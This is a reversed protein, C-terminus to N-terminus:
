MKYDYSSLVKENRRFIANEEYDLSKQPDLTYREFATFNHGESINTNDESDIDINSM